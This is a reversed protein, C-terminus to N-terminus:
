EEMRMEKAQEEYEELDLDLMKKDLVFGKLEQALSELVKDSAYQIWSCYDRLWIDAYVYYIDHVAFLKYMRLLVRLIARKGSSVVQYVDEWVKNIIDFHRFLPYALARRSSAVVASSVTHFDDDLAAFQPTLKGVTWASEVTPEDMTTRIDYLTAFLLTLLGVYTKKANSLHKYNSKKAKATIETIQRKEETSFEPETETLNAPLSYHVYEPIDPNDFIEAVYYDPDFRSKEIETRLEQRAEADVSALEPNVIENIDNGKAISVGVSGNHKGEWGYRAEVDEGLRPMEQKIEWDFAEAEEIETPGEDAEVGDEATDMEEIGVGGATGAAGAGGAKLQGMIEDENNRALLKGILDLDPFMGPTEKPIRCKITSAGLDYTATAKRTIPNTCKPPAPVTSVSSLEEVVAGSEGLEEVLPRPTNVEEILPGPSTGGVVSQELRTSSIEEILPRPSTATEVTKSPRLEEILTTSTMEEHSRKDKKDLSDTESEAGFDEKKSVEVVEEILPRPENQGSESKIREFESRAAEIAEEDEDILRGPFRLRLYYPALSFVFLEGDVIVEINSVRIHPAKINVFVFNEDQDVSFDPTIM